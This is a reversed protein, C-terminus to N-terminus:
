PTDQIESWPTLISSKEVETARGLVRELDIRPFAPTRTIIERVGDPALLFTDESKVGVASPNWAFATGLPVEVGAIDRAQGGWYTDLVPFTEGPKGKCTRGAYGTAGGQHHNHWENEPFGMSKYARKCDDFVGGLTRGPQSAEQMLADVGCIRAYADMTNKPLEAVMKFRTLSAVLGERLFCGAVMVYRQVTKESLSGSVLPAQTPLPHRFRAIRDDAAVLAVPVQCRRRAGEAILIAAIDAELMGATVQRLTATMAEAALQGLRRYKEMEVPTLLARLIAMDQHVNPGLSGDDSALNGRFAKKVAGAPTEEFWLFSRVDCGLGGLEEDMLRPEEITNGVFHVDGKKTIFLSNAGLDGATYIYNRKGGTAMAFNDVRSLLVGDLGKEILFAQVLAIRLRFLEIDNMGAFDENRRSFGRTMIQVTYPPEPVRRAM